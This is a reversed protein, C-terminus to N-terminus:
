PTDTVPTISPRRVQHLMYMRNGFKRLMGEPWMEYAVGDPYAAALEAATIEGLDARRVGDVVGPTDHGTIVYRGHRHSGSYDVVTGVPIPTTVVTENM